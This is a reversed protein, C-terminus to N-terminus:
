LKAFSMCWCDERSVAALWYFKRDSRMHLSFQMKSYLPISTLFLFPLLFFYSFLTYECASKWLFRLSKLACSLLIVGKAEKFIGTKSDLLDKTMQVLPDHCFLYVAHILFANGKCMLKWNRPTFTFVRFIMNWCKDALCQQNRAISLM